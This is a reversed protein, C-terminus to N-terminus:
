VTWVTVFSGTKMDGGSSYITLSTLSTTTNVVGYFFTQYGPYDVGAESIGFGHIKPKNGTYGQYFNAKLIGFCYFASTTIIENYTILLASASPQRSTNSASTATNSRSISYGYDGAGSMGNFILYASTGTTQINLCYEIYINREGNLGTIDIRSADASLIASTIYRINVSPNFSAAVMTNCYISKWRYTGSGLKSSTTYALESGAMPFISGQGIWYLNDNMDAADATTSNYIVRFM